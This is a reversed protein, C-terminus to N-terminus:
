KIRLKSVDYAVEEIRRLAQKAQDHKNRLYGTLNMQMLESMLDDAVKALKEVEKFKRATALLVVQRAIEGPVDCLGGLYSDTDVQVEKIVGVSEGRLVKGFMKAEVYEELAARYSGEGRLDPEKIFQKEMSSLLSEVQGLLKEGGTSDDRHFAFIAQKSLSLADAAQKIVERRMIEYRSYSQQIQKFFTSM